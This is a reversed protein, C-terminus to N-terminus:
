PSAWNYGSLSSLRSGSALSTKTEVGNGCERVVDSEAQPTFGLKRGGLRPHDGTGLGVAGLSLQKAAEGHSM